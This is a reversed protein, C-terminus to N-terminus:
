CSSPYEIWWDYQLDSQFNFLHDMKRAFYKRLDSGTKTEERLEKSYEDLYALLRYHLLTRNIKIVSGETLIFQKENKNTNTLSTATIHWNDKTRAEHILGCRVNNYFDYANYPKDNEKIDKHKYQWFNDQFITSTHLLSTFMKQSERYEYKPSSSSKKHNFIKGQRFAAFMEILACQVTVITFGEGVLIDEEIILQIPDFYKRKLRKELLKIAVDWTENYNYTKNLEERINTWETKEDLEADM